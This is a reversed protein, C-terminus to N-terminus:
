VRGDGINLELFNLYTRKVDELDEADVMVALDSVALSINNIIADPRERNPINLCAFVEMIMDWVNMDQKIKGQKDNIVEKIKLYADMTNEYYPGAKLHYGELAEGILLISQNIYEEKTKM